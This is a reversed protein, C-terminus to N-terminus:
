IKAYKTEVIERRIKKKLEPITTPQKVYVSSKVFSSLFFDCPTLDYSNPQCNQDGNNTIVRGPFIVCCRYQRQRLTM